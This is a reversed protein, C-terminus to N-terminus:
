ASRKQCSAAKTVTDRTVRDRPGEPSKCARRVGLLSSFEQVNKKAGLAFLGTLAIGPPPTPLGRGQHGGTCVKGPHPDACSGWTGGQGRRALVPCRRNKRMQWAAPFPVERSLRRPALAGSLTKRRKWAAPAAAHVEQERRQKSEQPTAQRDAKILLRSPPQVTNQGAPRHVAGERLPSPPAEGGPGTSPLALSATPTCTHQQACFASPPTPRPSIELRSGSVGDEAM